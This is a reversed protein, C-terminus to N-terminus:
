EERRKKEQEADRSESEKLRQEWSKNMEDMMAQNRRINEEAEQLKKAAEPDNGVGAGLGAKLRKNEEM